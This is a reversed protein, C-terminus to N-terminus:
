LLVGRRWAAACTKLLRYLALDGMCAAAPGGSNIAHLAYKRALERAKFVVMGDEAAIWLYVELSLRESLLPVIELLVDSEIEETVVAVEAKITYGPRKRSENRLFPGPNDVPPLFHWVAQNAEDLVVWGGAGNPLVAKAPPLGLKWARWNALASVFFHIAGLTKRDPPWSPNRNWARALNKSARVFAAKSAAQQRTM